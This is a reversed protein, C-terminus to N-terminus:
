VNTLIVLNLTLVNIPCAFCNFFVGYIYLKLTFNVNDNLILHLNSVM